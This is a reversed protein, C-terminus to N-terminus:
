QLLNIAFLPLVMIPERFNFVTTISKRRHSKLDERRCTHLNSDQPNYRRMTENSYVSTESIRIAATMAIIISATRTMVMMMMTIISATPVESVDTYEL